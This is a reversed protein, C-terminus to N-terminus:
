CSVDLAARAAVYAAEIDDRNLSRGTQMAQDFASVLLRCALLAVNERDVRLRYRQARRQGGSTM